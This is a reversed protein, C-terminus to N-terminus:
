TKAKYTSCQLCFNKKVKGYLKCLIRNDPVTKKRKKSPTKDEVWVEELIPVKQRVIVEKRNKGKCGCGKKKKVEKIEYMLNGNADRKQVVKKIKKVEDGDEDMEIVTSDMERICFKCPKNKLDQETRKM